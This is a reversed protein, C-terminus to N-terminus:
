KERQAIAQKGPTQGSVLAQLMQCGSLLALLLWLASRKFISLGLEPGQCKLSSM